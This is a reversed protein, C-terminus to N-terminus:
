GHLTGRLAAARLAADRGVALGPVAAAAYDFYELAQEQAGEELLLARALYYAAGARGVTDGAMELQNRFYEAHGGAEGRRVALMQSLDQLMKAYHGVSTIPKIAPPSVANLFGTSFASSSM